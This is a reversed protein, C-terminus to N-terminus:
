QVAKLIYNEIIDHYQVPAQEPSINWAGGTFVVVMDVEPLVVMFQLGHGRASFAEINGGRFEELWWLFGYGSTHFSTMLEAPPTVAHCTSQRIWEPSVITDGSWTGDQLFLQGLKAMDRPRMYLATSAFAMQPDNEFGVWEYNKIGLPEFLYKGAFDSLPLGSTRRIIEGLLNVSGSNYIFTRGPKALLPKELAYQVPDHAHWMQNLENRPDSYAYEESVLMGSTMTLLHYITIRDKRRTNLFSYDPFFSFLKQDTSNIFGKDLAIGTLISTVSKSASAMFHLCNMDFRTSPGAEFSYNSLEADHGKFYEEFVLKNNKIILISHFYHEDADNLENMLNGLIETYLGTESLSATKWGDPQEPPVTYSYGSQGNLHSQFTIQIM